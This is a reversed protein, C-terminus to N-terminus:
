SQSLDTKVAAKFKCGSRCVSLAPRRSLDRECLKPLLGDMDVEADTVTASDAGARATLAIGKATQMFEGGIHLDKGLKARFFATSNRSPFLVGPKPYKRRFVRPFAMPMAAPQATEM